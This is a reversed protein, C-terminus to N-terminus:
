RYMNRLTGPENSMLKPFTVDCGASAVPMTTPAMTVITMRARIKQRSTFFSHAFALCPPTIRDCGRRYMARTKRGEKRLQVHARITVAIKRAANAIGTVNSEIMHTVPDPDSALTVENVGPAIPM